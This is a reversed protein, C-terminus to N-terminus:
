IINTLYFDFVNLGCAITIAAAGSLNANLNIETPYHYRGNSYICLMQGNQVAEKIVKAVEADTVMLSDTEVILMGPIFKRDIPKREAYEEVIEVTIPFSTDKLFRCSLATKIKPGYELNSIGNVTKYILFDCEGSGKPNGYVTQQESMGFGCYYEGNYNEFQCTFILQHTVGNVTVNYTKGLEYEAEPLVDTCEVMGGAAQVDYKEIVSSTKKEIIMNEYFPKDKLNNWSPETLVGKEDVSLAENETEYKLFRESM